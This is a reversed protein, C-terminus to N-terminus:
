INRVNKGLIFTRKREKKKRFGSKVYLRLAPTNAKLVSLELTNKHLQEAMAIAHNLMYTAVGTKRYFPSVSLSSIYLTEAKEQLAIVGVIRKKLIVFYRRQKFFYIEAFLIYPIAVSLSLPHSEISFRNEYDSKRFHLFNLLNFLFHQRWKVPESQFRQQLNKM